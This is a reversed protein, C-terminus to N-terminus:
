PKEEGDDLTILGKAAAGMACRYVVNDRLREVGRRNTGLAAAVLDISATQGYYLVFLRGERKGTFYRRADAAVRLWKCARRVAPPADMLKFAKRSVIDTVMGVHSVSPREWDTGPSAHLVDARYTRIEERLLAQHHLHWEVSAYIDRNIPKAM